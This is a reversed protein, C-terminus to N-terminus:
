DHGRVQPMNQGLDASSPDAVARRDVDADDVAGRLIKSVENNQLISHLKTRAATEKTPNEFVADHFIRVAMRNTQRLYKLDVVKHAKELAAADKFVLKTHDCFNSVMLALRNKDLSLQLDTALDRDDFWEKFAGVTYADVSTPVHNSDTKVKERELAKKRTAVSGTKDKIQRAFFLALARGAELLWASTLRPLLVQPGGRKNEWAAIELLSTIVYEHGGV